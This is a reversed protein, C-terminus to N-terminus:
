EPLLPLLEGQRAEPLLAIHQRADDNRGMGVLMLIQCLVLSERDSILLPLVTCIVMAQRPMGFSLAAFALEVLLRKQERTMVDAGASM